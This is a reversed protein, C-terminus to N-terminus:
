VIQRYVSLFDNISVESVTVGDDEGSREEEAIIQLLQRIDDKTLKDFPNDIWKLARFISSEDINWGQDQLKIALLEVKEEQNSSIM